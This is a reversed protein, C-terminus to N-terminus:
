KRSDMEALFLKYHLQERKEFLDCLMKDVREIVADNKWDYRCTLFHIFMMGAYKSQVREFRKKLWLCKIKKFMKKEGKLPKRERKPFVFYFKFCCFFM